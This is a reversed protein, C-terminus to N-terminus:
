VTERSEVRSPRDHLLAEVRNIFAAETYKEKYSARANSGAVQVAETTLRSITEALQTYNRMEFLWGNVGHDVVSALGGGNSGIVPRGRAFAEIAILGFPEPEDSPVIVVDSQDIYDGIADVQGVITVTEANPLRSVLTPVDTAAGSPPPGGLIVLSWNTDVTSWATVLTSYGKWANWRSAVLARLPRKHPDAIPKPDGPDSVGNAIVLARKQLFRPLTQLAANSICVLDSTFFGLLCLIKRESGTWTEQVHLIRRPVGLLWAIPAFILCASTTMYVTGPQNSYVCAFARVFKKALRAIGLPTFYRRRMIPVDLFEIDVRNSDLADSMRNNGVEVDTPLVLVIRAGPLRLGAEILQLSVRDAGYMENSSHVFLLTSLTAQTTANTLGKTQRLLRHRLRFSAM